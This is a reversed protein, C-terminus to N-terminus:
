VPIIHGLYHSASEWYQLSVTEESATDRFRHLIPGFNSNIVLLFDYTHKRNTGFDDVKLSRSHGQVAFICKKASFIRRISCVACIHIFISGYEYGCQHM